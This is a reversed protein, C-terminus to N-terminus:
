HHLKKIKMLDRFMRVSDKILRIRSESRDQWMIPVEAVKLGQRKALYLLEVDFCLGELKQNSFVWQGAKKKFCKFGCQTDKFDGFLLMRVLLNFLRGSLYRKFPQNQVISGRLARSGIAIDFGEDLAKLLLDVEKIPTALDADTFLLYTGSAELAGRRVSFGKGRNRDNVLVKLRPEKLATEKLVSMTRDTSGDDVAIVEWSNGKLDLYASVRGITDSAIKEENFFPIVVSLFVSDANALASM